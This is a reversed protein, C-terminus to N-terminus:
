VRLKMREPQERLWKGVEKAEAGGHETIHEAKGLTVARESCPSSERRQGTEWAWRGLSM